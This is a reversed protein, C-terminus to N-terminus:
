DRAQRVAKLWDLGFRLDPEIYHGESWENLSAIFTLPDDVRRSSHFKLGRRFAQHFLRPHEGTVVPSWPYKGPRERGFDSARPSADWGPAISPMYSLGSRTEYGSWELARGCASKAYDQLKPGKWQPLLVYHTVSDFGIQAVQDIIHPAPDIAALHLEPYGHELLWSRAKQIAIKAQTIGLEAVFFTSDFISFYCRGEVTLYNARRFYQKAVTAILAVFDEVDTRVRREDAIIPASTRKVPLVRRPMRNAWMLGFPTAKGPTSRLYGLDLAEEFVRKGRCWFFGYVMADVGHERALQM